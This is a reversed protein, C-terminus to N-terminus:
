DPTEGLPKRVRTGQVLAVMSMNVTVRQVFLVVITGGMTAKGEIVLGQEGVM